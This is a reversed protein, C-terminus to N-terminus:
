EIDISFPSAPLGEKNYLNVKPLNNFGYRVAIPKTIDANSVIVKNGKIVATAPMFKKDDGAITFEILEGDKAM